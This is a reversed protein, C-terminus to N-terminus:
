KARELVIAKGGAARIKDMALRSFRNAKVTLKKTLLGRYVIKVPRKADKLLGAKALSAADVTDGANFKQELDAVRIHAFLSNARLREIRVAQGGAKTIKTEAQKSIGHARVTVKKTLTGDGLVRVGDRPQAIAGREV